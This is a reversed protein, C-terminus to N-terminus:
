QFRPLIMAGTDVPHGLTARDLLLFFATAFRQHSLHIENALFRSRLWFELM